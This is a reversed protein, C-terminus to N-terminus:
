FAEKPQGLVHDCFLYIVGKKNSPFCHNAAGFYKQTELHGLQNLIQQYFVEIPTLLFLLLSWFFAVGCTKITVMIKSFRMVPELTVAIESFPHTKGEAPSLRCGVSCGCRTIDLLAKLLGILESFM